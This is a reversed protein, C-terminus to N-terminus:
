QTGSGKGRVTYILAGGVLGIVLVSAAFDSWRDVTASTVLMFGYDRFFFVSFYRLIILAVAVWMIVLQKKNMNSYETM